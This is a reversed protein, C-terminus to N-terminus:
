AARIHAHSHNKERRFDLKLMNDKSARVKQM